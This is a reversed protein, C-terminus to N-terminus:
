RTAQKQISDQQRRGKLKGIADMLPKRGFALALVGYALGGALALLPLRFVPAAVTEEIWPRCQTVALFLVASAMVFPCVLRVIRRISVGLYKRGFYFSVPTTLLQGFVYTQVIVPLPCGRTAALVGVTTAARVIVILFSIGPKGVANLGTGNYYQMTQVAGLLALPKLIEASGAWVSGFVVVCLEPAVASVLVLCPVAFAATATMARYYAEALREREGAIRSFGAHAVDLVVSSLLQMLIAYLRSGVSYLGLTAAGLWAGIALEIVRTNAFDLLRMGLINGGYRLLQGFGATSLGLGPKWIPKLWLLLLNVTANTLFQGVLSWVGFGALALWVGAAGSIVTAALTRVALWRYQFNRRFLALQCFGLANILIGLCAIRLIETLREIEMAAAILPACWWIAAVLLAALIFNALFATNLEKPSIAPKQVIADSLGQEAFLEIFALVAAAAAFVGFEEPSLIRALLFFIVIGALRGGWSRVVSWILGSRVQKGLSSTTSSM